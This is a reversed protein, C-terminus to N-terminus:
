VAAAGYLFVEMRSVMRNKHRTVTAPDYSLYGAVDERSMQQFYYLGIIEEYPDNKILALAKNVTEIENEDVAIQAELDHITDEELDEPSLCVKHKQHRIALVSRNPLGNKRIDTIKERANEIRMKIVPYAYLRKETARFTDDVKRENEMRQAAVAMHIIEKVTPETAKQAKM